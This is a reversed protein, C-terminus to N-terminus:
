RSARRDIDPRDSPRLLLGYMQGAIPTSEHRAPEDLWARMARTSMGPVRLSIKIPVALPRTTFVHTSM